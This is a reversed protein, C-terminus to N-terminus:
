FLNAFYSVAIDGKRDEESQEIGRDDILSAVRNKMKRVQAWGHFVKTNRDGEKLWTNKSKEKWFSEEEKFAKELDIKMDTIMRMDPFQKAEEQEINTRLRM